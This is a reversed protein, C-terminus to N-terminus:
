IKRRWKTGDKTDEPILDHDKFLIAKIKDAKGFEKKKRFEDRESILIKEIESLLISKDEDNQLM